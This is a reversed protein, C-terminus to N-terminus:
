RAASWQSDLLQGFGELVACTMADALGRVTSRAVPARSKRAATDLQMSGRGDQQVGSGCQEDGLRGLRRSQKTSPQAPGPMVAAQNVAACLSNRSGAAPQQPSLAAPAPEAAAAAQSKRDAAQGTTAATSANGLPECEDRCRPM